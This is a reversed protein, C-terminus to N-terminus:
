LRSGRIIEVGGLNNLLSHLSPLKSRCSISNLKNNGLLPKFTKIRYTIREENSSKCDLDKLKKVPNLCSIYILSSLGDREEIAIEILNNMFATYKQLEHIIIPANMKIIKQSIAPIHIRKIALNVKQHEGTKCRHAAVSLTYALPSSAKTIIQCTCMFHVHTSSKWKHLLIFIFCWFFYHFETGKCFWWM